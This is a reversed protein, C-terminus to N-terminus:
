GETGTELSQTPEGDEASGAGRGEGYRLLRFYIILAQGWQHGWQGATWQTGRRPPSAANGPGAAQLALVVADQATARCTIYIGWMGRSDRPPHLRSPIPRWVM